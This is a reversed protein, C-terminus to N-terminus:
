LLKHQRVFGRERKVDNLIDEWIFGSALVM